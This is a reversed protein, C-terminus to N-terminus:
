PKHPEALYPFTSLFPKDNASPFPADSQLVNQAGPGPDISAVFDIVDDTLERGNPIEARASTNYIMVDPSMHLKSRHLRPPFTNLTLFENLQSRLSRGVQDRIPGSVDGVRSQGWLLITPSDKLVLRLPLEIVLAAINKGIQPGRIFPDDRLGAFLQIQKTGSKIGRVKLRPVGNPFDFNFSIDERIDAPNVVSGGFAENAKPYDYSVESDNDIFIQLKLDSPWAYTTVSAPIAPNTDLILVLKSGRTFAFLDSIRADHRGMSILQPTDGHDSGRAADTYVCFAAMFIAGALALTRRASPSRM